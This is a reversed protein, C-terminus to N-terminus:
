SNLVAAAEPNSRTIVNGVVVLNPSPELNSPSYPSRVEIGLRRLMSAAPEYVQNDSGSVRLGRESLMGALAAMASGAVGILHVHHVNAPIRGLRLDSASEVEDITSREEPMKAPPSVASREQRCGRRRVGADRPRPHPPASRSNGPQRPASPRSQDVIL